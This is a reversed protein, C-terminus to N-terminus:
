GPVQTPPALTPIPIFETPEAPPLPTATPSIINLSNPSTATGFLPDSVEVAYVAPGLTNPIEILLAGANVFTVKVLGAGVLRVTTKDTFGTGFVTVLPPNYATIVSPEVRAVQVVPVPEPDDQAAAMAGFALTLLTLLFISYRKM